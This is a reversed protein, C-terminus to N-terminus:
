NTSPLTQVPTAHKKIWDLRKENEYLKRLRMEVEYPRDGDESNFPYVKDLNATAFQQKMDQIHRSYNDSKERCYAALNTCLGYHKKFPHNSEGTDLWQQIEKYFDTLM